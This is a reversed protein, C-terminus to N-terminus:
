RRWSRLNRKFARLLRLARDAHWVRREVAAVDLSCAQAYASCLLRRQEGRAYMRCLSWVARRQRLPGLDMRNIDVLTLQDDANFLVNGPSFDRHLMGHQHLAAALQATSRLRQASAVNLRGGLDERITQQTAFAASVYWSRRLIGSEREEVCALPQPTPLACHQLLLGNILSRLAKSRRLSYGRAQIGRPIRFAKIVVPGLQPWPGDIRLLRNRGRYLDQSPDSAAAIEPLRRLWAVANSNGWGPAIWMKMTCPPANNNSPM